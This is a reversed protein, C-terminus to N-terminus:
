PFGVHEFQCIDNCATIPKSFDQAVVSHFELNLRLRGRLIDPRDCVDSDYLVIGYLRLLSANGIMHDKPYEM